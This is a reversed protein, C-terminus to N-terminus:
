HSRTKHETNHKHVVPNLQPKCARHSIVHRPLSKYCNKTAIEQQVNQLPEETYGPTLIKYNVEVWETDWVLAGQVKLLAREHM